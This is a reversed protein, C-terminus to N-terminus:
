ATTMAARFRALEEMGQELYTQLMTLQYLDTLLAGSPPNM